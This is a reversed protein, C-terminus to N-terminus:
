KNLTYELSASAVNREMVGVSLTCHTREGVLWEERWNSITGDDMSKTMDDLFMESLLRNHIGPYTSPEGYRYIIKQLLDEVFDSTEKTNEFNTIYRIGYFTDSAEDFLLAKSFEVGEFSVTTTLTYLGPLNDYKIDENKLDMENLVAVSDKEYLAEVSSLSKEDLLVESTTGSKSECGSFSICTVFCLLCMITIKKM